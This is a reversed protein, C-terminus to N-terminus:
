ADRQNEEINKKLREADYSNYFCEKILSGDYYHYEVVFFGNEVYIKVM